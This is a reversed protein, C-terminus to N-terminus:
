FFFNSVGAHLYLICRMTQWDFHIMMSHKRTLADTSNEQKSLTKTANHPKKKSLLFYFYFIFMKLLYSTIPDAPFSFFLPIRRNVPSPSICFFNCWKQMFIINHPICLFLMYM